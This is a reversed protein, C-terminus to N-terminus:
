GGGVGNEKLIDAGAGVDDGNWGGVSIYSWASMTRLGLYPDIRLEWDGGGM